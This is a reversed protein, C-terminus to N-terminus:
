KDRLKGTKIAKYALEYWDYNDNAANIVVIRGNDLDILVSQGGKGDMGIINRGNMGAYDFYFQGGYHSSFHRKNRADKPKIDFFWSDESIPMKRNEIEKLYQGVCNNDQWDNLIAIALRLYDYRSAFAQAKYM